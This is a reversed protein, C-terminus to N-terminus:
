RGPRAHPSVGIPVQEGIAGGTALRRLLDGSARVAEQGPQTVRWTTAEEDTM